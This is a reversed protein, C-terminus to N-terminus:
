NPIPYQTNPLLSDTDVREAESGKQEGNAVSDSDGSEQLPKPAGIKRTRKKSANKRNIEARDNTRKIQEDLMPCVFGADTEVFYMRLALSILNKAVSESVFQYRIALQETAFAIEDHSLPAEKSAYEDMLYVAIGSELPGGWKGRKAFDGINHIYYHM